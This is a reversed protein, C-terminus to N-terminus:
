SHFYIAQIINSVSKKIVSAEMISARHPIVVKTKSFFFDNNVSIKM